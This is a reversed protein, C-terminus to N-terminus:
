IRAASELERPKPPELLQRAKRCGSSTSFRTFAHTGMCWDGNGAEARDAARPKGEVCDPIGNQFATGADAGDALPVGGLPRDAKGGFHVGVIPREDRVALKM